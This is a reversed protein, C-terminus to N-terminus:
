QHFQYLFFWRHHGSNYLLAASYVSARKRFPFTVWVFLTQTFDQFYRTNHHLMCDACVNFTGTRCCSKCGAQEVSIHLPRWITFTGATQSVEDYTTQSGPAAQPSKVAASSQIYWGCQWSTHTTDKEERWLKICATLTKIGAAHTNKNWHAHAICGTKTLTLYHKQWHKQTDM